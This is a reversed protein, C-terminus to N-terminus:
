GRKSDHARLERLYAAARRRLMADDFWAFGIVPALLVVSMVVGVDPRDFASFLGIFVLALGLPLATLMWTVRRYRALQEEIPEAGLRLRGLRGGWYRLRADWEPDPRTEAVPPDTPPPM